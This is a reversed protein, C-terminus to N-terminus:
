QGAVPQVGAENMLCEVTELQLIILMNELVKIYVSVEM